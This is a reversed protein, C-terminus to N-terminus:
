LAAFQTFLTLNGDATNAAHRLSLILQKAAPETLQLCPM